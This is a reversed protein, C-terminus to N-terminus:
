VLEELLEDAMDPNLKRYSVSSAFSAGIFGVGILGTIVESVEGITTYMMILALAGIAWHAGHELYIYKQLTKKEVLMITLSRVFMAGMGLGISIIIISSSIAFAGMVGDFSFSADILELYLFSIFGAYKVGNVLQKAAGNGEENSEILGSVGDVLLFLILGSIGALVVPLKEASNVFNQTIYLASLALIIQVGELKGLKALKEELIKIWHIDKAEDLIFSLFIMLLFMGGFAAITAHTSQLYHAYQMPHKLALLTVKIVGIGTFASVIIIPFLLRMGFVAILMGWTLFRQQWVEPMTQLKVANVVANDFSLSVELIGLIGAIFATELGSGPHIREGWIYALILGILSVIISLKFYKM